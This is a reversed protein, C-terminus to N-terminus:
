HLPNRRGSSCHSELPILHETARELVRAIGLLQADSPAGRLVKFATVIAMVHDAACVDCDAVPAALLRDLARSLEPLATRDGYASLYAAGNLPDDDLMRVLAARIRADRVGATALKAGVRARDEATACRDARRPARGGHEAPRRAV